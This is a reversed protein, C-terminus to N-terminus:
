FNILFYEFPYDAPIKIFLTIEMIKKIEAEVKVFIGHDETNELGFIERLVEERVEYKEFMKREEKEKLISELCALIGKKDNEPENKFSDLKQRFIEPIKLGSQYEEMNIEAFSKISFKESFIQNKSYNNLYSFNDLTSFFDKKM